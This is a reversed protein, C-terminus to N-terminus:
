GLLVTRSFFRDSSVVDTIPRLEGHTDPVLLQQRFPSEAFGPIEVFLKLLSLMTDLSNESGLPQTTM